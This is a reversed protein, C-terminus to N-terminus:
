RKHVYILHVCNRLYFLMSFFVELYLMFSLYYILLISYYFSYICNLSVVLAKSRNSLLKEIDRAAIEVLQRANNPEVTYM